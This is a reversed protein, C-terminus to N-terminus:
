KSQTESQRRGPETIRRHMETVGRYGRFVGAADFVPEGSSICHIEEGTDMAVVFEFGSYSRHAHVDAIHAAWHPDGVDARAGEWRTKGILYDVSFGWQELITSNFETFRHGDDQNWIVTVTDAGTGETAPARPLHTAAPGPRARVIYDASQGAVECIRVLHAISPENAGREWARYTEPRVGIARAFSAMTKHGSRLRALALRKGLAQAIRRAADLQEQTV